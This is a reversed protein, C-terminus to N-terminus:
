LDADNQRSGVAFPNPSNRWWAPRHPRLCTRRMELVRAANEDIKLIEPHESGALPPLEKPKPFM